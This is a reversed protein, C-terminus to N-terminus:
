NDDKKYRIALEVHREEIERPKLWNLVELSSQTIRRSQGKRPRYQLFM